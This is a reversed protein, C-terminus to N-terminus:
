KVTIIKIKELEIDIQSTVADQIQLTESTLLSEVPVIVTVSQDSIIALAEEFGKAKIVTEISAEKSVRDAIESLKDIADKKVKEDASSNEIVTKYENISANTKDNREKRATAIYNVGTSTQVAEGLKSDTNFYNGEGLNKSSTDGTGNSFSSFKMNFWVAAALCVVLSALVLHRKSFVKGKKM